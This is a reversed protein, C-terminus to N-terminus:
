FGKSESPNSLNFKIEGMYIILSHFYYYGNALISVLAAGVAGWLYVFILNGVLNVVTYYLSLILL